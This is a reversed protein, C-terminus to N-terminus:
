KEIDVSHVLFEEGSLITLSISKCNPCPILEKGLTFENKCDRCLLKAPIRNFHLIADACITNKAIEDWYFQVSDDVISSLNGIDLYINTVQIAEERNAVDLAISLIEETIALEHM